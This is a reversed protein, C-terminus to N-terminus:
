QDMTSIDKSPKNKANRRDIKKGTVPDIPLFDEDVELLMEDRSRFAVAGIGLFLGTLLGFSLFITLQPSIHNTSRLPAMVVSIYLSTDQNELDLVIELNQYKKMLDEELREKIGNNAKQTPDISNANYIKHEKKSVNTMKKLTNIKANLALVDPHGPSFNVILEQKQKELVEIQKKIESISTSTIEKGSLSQIRAKVSDRMQELYKTRTAQAKAIIENILTNCMHFSSEPSYAVAGIQFVTSSERFIEFNGKLKNLETDRELPTLKKANPNEKNFVTLLFDNSLAGMIAAERESRLENADYVTPLFDMMMPNQFYKPSVNIKGITKYKKPLVSYIILPGTLGIIFGIIFVFKYKYIQKVIWEISLNKM